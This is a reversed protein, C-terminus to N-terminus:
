EVRNNLDSEDVLHYMIKLQELLERIAINTKSLRLIENFDHLTLGSDIDHQYVLTRDSDGAHRSYVSEGKDPSEYILPPKKDMSRM